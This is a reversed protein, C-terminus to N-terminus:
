DIKKGGYTKEQRNRCETVKDECTNYYNINIFRKYKKTCM